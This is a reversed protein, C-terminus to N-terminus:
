KSHRWGYDVPLRLQISGKSWFSSSFLSRHMEHCMRTPANNLQVFHLRVEYVSGAFLFWFSIERGGGVCMTFLINHFNQSAMLRTDKWFFAEPADQTAPNNQHWLLQRLQERFLTVSNRSDGSGPLHTNRQACLFWKNAWILCLFNMKHRRQLLFFLSAGSSPNQKDAPVHPLHFRWERQQKKTKRWSIALLISSLTKQKQRSQKLWLFLLFFASQSLSDFSDIFKAGIKTSQDSKNPMGINGFVPHFETHRTEMASLWRNPLLAVSWATKQWFNENSVIFIYM